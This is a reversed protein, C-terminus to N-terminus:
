MAPKMSHMTHATKKHAKSMKHPHQASNKGMSPKAMMKTAMVPTAAMTHPQAMMGDGMMNGKDGMMSGGAAASMTHGGMSSCTGKSVSKWDAPDHDKTAMGACGHSGTSSACDNKGATAIGFCKETDGGMPAAQATGALLLSTLAAAMMLSHKNM